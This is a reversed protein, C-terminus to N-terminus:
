AARGAAVKQPAHFSTERRRLGVVYMLMATYGLLLVVKAIVLTVAAGLLGYAPVLIAGAAASALASGVFLPLQLRFTRTADLAVKMIGAVYGVGAALLLVHLVGVHTAYSANYLWALLTKGFVLSGAVGAVGVVGAALALRLLHRAFSSLAGTAYLRAMRGISSQGLATEVYQGLRMLAALASFIGLEREGCHFDLFYRPINLNLSNLAVILGLPLGVWALNMLARLDWLPSSREGGLRLRGGGKMHLLRWACPLDFYLVVAGLALALALTAALVDHTFNITVAFAALSLVGKQVLSSAMQDMRDFKQFLGYFLEGILEVAKAAGVALIVVMVQRRYDAALVVAGLAAMGIMTSLMRLLVYRGFCFDQQPDTALITRLQMGCLMLVPACLAQGLGFAGVVEPPCAKVLFVM